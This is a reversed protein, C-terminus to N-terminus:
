RSLRCFRFGRKEWCKQPEFLWRATEKPHRTPSFLNFHSHHCLLNPPILPCLPIDHPVAESPNQLSQLVSPSQKLQQLYLSGLSPQTSSPSHSLHPSHSPVPSPRVAEGRGQEIDSKRSGNSNAAQRGQTQHTQHTQDRSCQSTNLEGWM